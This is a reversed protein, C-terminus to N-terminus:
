GFGGSGGGGSSFSGGGSFGGSFGGSSGGSSSPPTSTMVRSSSNLMRTLGASMGALGGTLGGSMGELTPRGGEGPRGSPKNTSTPKNGYGGYHGYGGRTSYPYYWPPPPTHPVKAFKRIWSREIGFATAYPLYKEFLETANELEEYKEIRELYTQFAKWKAAEEAGKLTKKPMHRSVYLLILGTLGIAIAPCFGVAAVEEPLLAASGFFTIVGLGFVVWGLAGFANRVSQPSAPVYGMDVMEQYLMKQIRPISSHFKYKLDDLDISSQNKFIREVFYREYQKLDNLSKDTREFQYNNRGLEKILIYGRAGLDVISSIIDHIDAREDILAGAIAPPINAPPETIYEPPTVTLQPDRGYLYWLALAGIPGGILLLISVLIVSLQITDNRQMQRQWSPTPIDLLGHPIQTRIEFTDGSYIFTESEFTVTRGDDSVTTTVLDTEGNINGEALFGSGDLYKQPSVGPPLELRIRSNEVRSSLLDPPLPKWFIQDGDGEEATGVIIPNKVLYNITYTHEGMTPEFYWDIRIEDGDDRVAYTGPTRSFGREFQQDGERLGLVEIGDNQGDIGTPITRFGFSFTGGTFVLTQSESVEIDGNDLLTMTVDFEKWYFDKVQAATPQTPILLLPFLLLLLLKPLHTVATQKM